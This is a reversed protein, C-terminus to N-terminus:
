TAGQTSATPPEESSTRSALWATLQTLRERANADQIPGPDFAVAEVPLDLAELLERRLVEGGVTAVVQLDVWIDPGKTTGNDILHALEQLLVV